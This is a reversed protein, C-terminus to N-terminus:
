VIPLVTNIACCLKRGDDVELERIKNLATTFSQGLCPHLIFAIKAFPAETKTKPQEVAKIRIKQDEFARAITALVLPQDLVALHVYRGYELESFSLVPPKIEFLSVSSLQTDTSLAAASTRTHTLPHKPSLLVPSIWAEIGVRDIMKLCAFHPVPTYGFRKAIEEDKEDFSNMLVSIKKPPIPFIGFARNALQSLKRASPTSDHSAIQIGIVRGEIVWRELLNFLNITGEHMAVSQVFEPSTEKRQM